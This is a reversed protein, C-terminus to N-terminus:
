EEVSTVEEVGTLTFHDLWEAKCDLNKCWAGLAGVNHNLEFDTPSLGQIDESGCAPCVMGDKELYEKVQEKTFAM